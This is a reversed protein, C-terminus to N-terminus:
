PRQLVPKRRCGILDRSREECSKRAEEDALM